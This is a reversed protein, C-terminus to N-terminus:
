QRPARDMVEDLFREVRSFVRRSGEGNVIGHREAYLRCLEKDTGGIRDFIELGSVPNVVPDKSGQVILAPVRLNKLNKEVVNMFKELEAVGSVPNRFYNIHRNEPDNKVFEMKGRGVHLRNLFSNWLVVTSALRSGINNVKLPANISVVCEFAEGKNIAQYLAVGAGTSFGAVAMRKVTNKLVIFGRNASEYWEEWKRSGLDEPATGHGRLRVGYVTYGARYLYEGLARVEEPAAMYGHILLIGKRGFFRKLFFPRGINRPKSEGDIHYKEYDSEFIGSDMELFKNRIKRRVMCSPLRMVADLKSSVASLPEIENKLVEVINDRRIDHFEYPRSFRERNKYIVGREEVILGDSKAADMFSEFRGHPDGTLLYRQKLALSTHSSQMPLERIRDLALFARNKFDQVGIRKKRYKQLIYAFVHDHNVTTLAYISEMYRKMLAVAESGFRLGRKMEDGSLYLARDRVMREYRGGSLYERPSIASGFNIDIDVGESLMTGEVELEEEIREPLRDVFMHALRNIINNRARIPFYTINVPVIVSEIRACEVAKERSAIGFHAMYENVGEEYGTELFYGLKARYFETRLALLGAGTHPPRRIGANYIMYKGHEVLKKDKVMQGEPFIMCSHDGRLLGGTMTRDREPDRTSIAGLSELYRGFGGSFFSFHALAYLDMGSVKEIIYPLFFTEMRTFHNVVYVAPGAPLHEEGHTRIDAKTAKILAQLALKTVGKVFGSTKM